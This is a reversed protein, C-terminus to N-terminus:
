DGAVVPPCEEKVYVVLLAECPTTYVHFRVVDSVVFEDVPARKLNHIIVRGWRPPDVWVIPVSTSTNDSPIMGFLDVIMAECLYYRIM